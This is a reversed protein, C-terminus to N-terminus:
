RRVNEMLCGATQRIMIWIPRMDHGPVMGHLNRVHASVDAMTGVRVWREVRTM